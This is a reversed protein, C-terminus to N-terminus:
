SKDVACSMMAEYWNVVPFEQPITVQRYVNRCLERFDAYNEGYWKRALEALSAEHLNGLAYKRGFGYQLPVVMGDAEVILPSVLNALSSDRLNHSIEGALFRDRHSRLVEQHVLDIHIYLKEGLTEQLKMAKLYAYAGIDNSPAVGALNEQARGAEELPHIQLLAAGQELAFSAVWDLHRFNQHTLTFLFGFPIGAQRIGELRGQMIQFAQSNGRMANHFKPMGDLSIALVDIADGLKEIVRENLLMGNSVLSTRMNLQRAHRLLDGLPQYLTPEGGSFSVRQYGERSADTIVQTLLESSLEETEHPSSASYCHLCQLNCRRTPHIQLTPSNNPNM